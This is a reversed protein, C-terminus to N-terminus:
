GAVIPMRYLDNVLQRFHITALEYNGSAINTLFPYKALNKYITNQMTDTRDVADEIRKFSDPKVPVKYELPVDLGNVQSVGYQKKVSMKSHKVKHAGLEETVGLYRPLQAWEKYSSYIRNYFEFAAYPAGEGEEVAVQLNLM